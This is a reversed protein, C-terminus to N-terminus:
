SCKLKEKCQDFHWRKMQPIPGEKNCHVCSIRERTKARLSLVAKTEDSKPVGILHKGYGGVNNKRTFVRKKQDINKFPFYNGSEKQKAKYELTHVSKFKLSMKKKFNEDAWREKLLQSHLLRKNDDWFAFGGGEGGPKLNLCKSDTLLLQKTILQAELTLAEQYTYCTQIITREFLEPAAKYKAIFKKGSGIYGDDISGKHVGVYYEGTQINEWKYVFAAYIEPETILKM